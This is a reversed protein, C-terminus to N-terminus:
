LKASLIERLLLGDELSLLVGDPAVAIEHASVLRSCDGDYRYNPHQLAFVRSELPYQVYIRRNALNGELGHKGQPM